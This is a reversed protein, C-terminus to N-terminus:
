PHGPRSKGSTRKGASEYNGPCMGTWSALHAAAPFRAM